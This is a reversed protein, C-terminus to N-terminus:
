TSRITSRPTPEGITTLAACAVLVDRPTALRVTAPAGKIIGATLLAATQLASCIWSPSNPWNPAEGTVFGDALEAIAVEDYPKGVQSWLFTEFTAAQEDTCPITVYLDYEYAKDYDAARAQVGDDWHAGLLTGDAMKAEVHQYLFGLEGGRIIRSVIDNSSVFRLIISM